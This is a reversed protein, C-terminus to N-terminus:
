GQSEELLLRVRARALSQFRRGRRVAAVPRRRWWEPTAVRLGLRCIGDGSTQEDRDVPGRYHWCPEERRCWADRACATNSLGVKSCRVTSKQKSFPRMEGGRLGREKERKKELEPYGERSQNFKKVGARSNELYGLVTM